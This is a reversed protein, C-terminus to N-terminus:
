QWIGIGMSILDQNCSSVSRIHPHLSCFLVKITESKGDGNYDGNDDGKDDGNDDGDGDGSNDGNDVGNDDGNDNGNDKNKKCLSM